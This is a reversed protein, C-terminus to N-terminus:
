KKRKKGFNMKSFLFIYLIELIGLTHVLFFIIFWVLHNKRAAKWWAIAKWVMSWIQALILIWLYKLPINLIDALQSLDAAM